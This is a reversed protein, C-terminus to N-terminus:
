NLNIVEKFFLIHETHMSNTNLTLIHMVFPCKFDFLDVNEYSKLPHM